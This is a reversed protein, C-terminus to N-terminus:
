LRVCICEFEHTFTHIYKGPGVKHPRLKRDKVAPGVRLLGLLPAPRPPGDAPLDAGDDVLCVEEAELTPTHTHTHTHTNGGAM